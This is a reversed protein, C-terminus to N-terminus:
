PEWPDRIVARNLEARAATLDEDFSAAEDETLRPLSALLDPLEGLRRGAMVPRLEAVPKGGQMLVFTEGRHAVRDLYEAFNRAVEAVSPQSPM